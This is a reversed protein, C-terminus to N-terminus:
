SRAYAPWAHENNLATDAYNFEVKVSIPSNPATTRPMEVKTIVVDRWLAVGQVTERFQVAGSTRLGEITACMFASLVASTFKMPKQYKQAYTDQTYYGASEEFETSYETDIKGPLFVKEWVNFANRFRFVEVNAMDLYYLRFIYTGCYIDSYVFGAKYSFSKNGYRQYVNSQEYTYTGDARYHYASFTGYNSTSRFYSIDFTEGPVLWALGYLSELYEGKYIRVLNSLHASYALKDATYGYCRVITSLSSLSIVQLYSTSSTGDEFTYVCRLQAYMIEKEVMELRVVEEVGSFAFQTGSIYAGFTTPSGYYINDDHVLPDYQKKYAGVKMELTCSTHNGKTVSLNSEIENIFIM